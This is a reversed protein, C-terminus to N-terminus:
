RFIYKEPENYSGPECTKAPCKFGLQNLFVNPAYHSFSWASGNALKIRSYFYFNFKALIKKRKKFTFTAMYNYEMREKLDLEPLDLYEPAEKPEIQSFLNMMNAKQWSNLKLSFPKAKKELEAGKGRLIALYDEIYEPVFRKFKREILVVDAEQFLAVFDAATKPNFEPSNELVSDPNVHKQAARKEEYKRLNERQRVDEAMDFYAGSDTEIIVKKSRMAFCNAALFLCLIPALFKM